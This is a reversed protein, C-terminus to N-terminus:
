KLELLGLLLFVLIILIVLVLHRPTKTFCSYSEYNMSKLLNVLVVVYVAM